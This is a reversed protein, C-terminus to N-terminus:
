EESLGRASAPYSLAFRASLNKTSHTKFGNRLRAHNESLRAMAGWVRPNETSKRAPGHVPLHGHAILVNHLTIADAFDQVARQVRPRDAATSASM